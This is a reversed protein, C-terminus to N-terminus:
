NIDTVLIVQSFGKQNIKKIINMVDGYNVSQDAKLYIKEKLNNNTIQLLKQAIKSQDIKEDQIFIEQNANLTVVIPEVKEEIAKSEGKPLNVDVSGTLMPAAVMFIILLVLLVDVFPTINIDSIIANKHRKNKNGSSFAM